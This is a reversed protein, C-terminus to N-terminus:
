HIVKSELAIRLEFKDSGAPISFADVLAVWSGAEPNKISVTEPNSLTAGDFNAQSTPSILILDVDATPYTGWDNRWGLRFDAQQTGGPVTFPVVTLQLARITSQTTFQPIPNTLSVISATTSVNGANTWDGSISLRLLGTEPTDIVLTGNTMFEFAKYDGEGISSTKASHVAVM